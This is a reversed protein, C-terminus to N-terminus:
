WEMETSVLKNVVISNKVSTTDFGEKILDEDNMLIHIQGQIQDHLELNGHIEIFKDKVAKDLDDKDKLYKEATKEGYGKQINPINDVRDGILRQIHYFMESDHYSTNIWENSRFNFHNGVISYIIDKDASALVVMEPDSYKVISCVDDAELGEYYSCKYAELLYNKTTKLWKLPQPKDQRNGKYSSSYKLRFYPKKSMALIFQQCDTKSCIFSIISDVNNISLHVDEKTAIFPIFDADIVVTKETFKM